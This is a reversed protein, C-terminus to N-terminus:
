SVHTQDRIQLSGVHPPIVLSTYWLRCAVIVSAWTGLAWARCFSLVSFHSAWMGCRSLLGWEDCSSFAQAYCCLGLVTFFYNILNFKFTNM